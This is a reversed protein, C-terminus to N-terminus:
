EYRTIRLEQETLELSWKTKDLAKLSNSYYARKDEETKFTISYGGFESTEIRGNFKELRELSAEEQKTM